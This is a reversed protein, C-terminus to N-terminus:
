VNYGGFLNTSSQLKIILTNIESRCWLAGEAEMGIKTVRESNPELVYVGDQKDYDRMTIIPTGSMTFGMVRYGFLNSPTINYIKTFTKSVGNGKTMRVDCVVKGNRLRSHKLFVLSDRLKLIEYESHTIFSPIDIVSFEESTLDFSVIMYVERRFRRNADITSETPKRYLNRNTVVVSDPDLTITGRPLNNLNKKRWGVSSLTYIEVLWTLNYIVIRVLKPDRTVPCVGFYVNDYSLNNILTPVKIAAMKRISPNWIVYMNKTCGNTYYRCRLCFLGHSSGLIGHIIHETPLMPVIIQGALFTDDHDVFSMYNDNYTSEKLYSALLLHKQIHDIGYRAIFKPSDIISKWTKSVSIFRILSKVALRKLNKIQIDFPIHESM